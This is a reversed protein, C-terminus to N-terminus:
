PASSALTLNADVTGPGTARQATLDTVNIGYQQHLNGLWRILNDFGVGQMQVKVASEGSAQVQKLSSSLGADGASKDILALLSQGPPLSAPQQGRLSQLQMALPRMTALTTQQQVVHSELKAKSSFFPRLALSYLLMALLAAGGLLLALRERPPQSEYWARLEALQSM